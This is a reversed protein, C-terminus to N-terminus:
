RSSPRSFSTFAWRRAGSSSTRASSRPSGRVSDPGPRLPSRLPPEPLAGRSFVRAVVALAAGDRGAGCACDAAEGEDDDVGDDDDAAPFEEDAADEDPAAATRMAGADADTAVRRAHRRHLRGAAFAWLLMWSGCRWLALRRWRAPFWKSLNRSRRNWSRRRANYSFCRACGFACGSTQSGCLHVCDFGRQM